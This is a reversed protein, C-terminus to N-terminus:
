APAEILFRCRPAGLRDCREQVAAGTVESLLAEVAKCTAPCATVAESLVCNHGRVEYGKGSRVLEADAGLQGLLAAGARVREAFSASRPVTPALRRGAARLAADLQRSPLREGLEHLLAALVPAYASSFLQAGEPAIGYLTAPKGVTGDRRLGTVQVIGDRVLTSLQARVANDTLALAQALEEVSCEDRQLLAVIRGRTSGGFRRQWWTM